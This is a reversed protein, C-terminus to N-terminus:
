KIIELQSQFTIKECYRCKLSIDGGKLVTFATAVPENNTICQPNVCKVFGEVTDPVEVRLKETVEFDEIINVRAMPAVLAIRNIEDPRCYRDNIKIIAKSGMRKSELNNGITIRNKERDLGLINIIKSLSESPIHDIVTGNEIARVEMIKDHAM